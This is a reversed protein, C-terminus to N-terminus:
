KKKELLLRCVLDHRTEHARLHTYSVSVLRHVEKTPHEFGGIGVVQRRAIQMLVRVDEPQIGLENVAPTLQNSPEDRRHSGSECWAIRISEGFHIDPAKGEVECVLLPRNGVTLMKM